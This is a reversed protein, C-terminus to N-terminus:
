HVCFTAVSGWPSNPHSLPMPTCGGSHPGNSCNVMTVITWDSAAWSNLSSLLAPQKWMQPHAGRNSKFRQDEIASIRSKHLCFHSMKGNRHRGEIKVRMLSLPSYLLILSIIQSQLDNWHTTHLRRNKRVPLCQFIRFNSLIVQDVWFDCEILLSVCSALYTM